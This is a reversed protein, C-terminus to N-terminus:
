GRRPRQAPRSFVPELELSTESVAVRIATAGEAQAKLVAQPWGFLTMVTDDGGMITRGANYWDDFAMSKPNAENAYVVHQDNEQPPPPEGNSMFYVGQDKVLILAPRITAQDINDKDPWGDKEVIKGGKHHEPMFLVDYGFTHTKAEMAHAALLVLKDMDFTLDHKMCFM